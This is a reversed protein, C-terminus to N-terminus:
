KKSSFGLSWTSCGQVSPTVPTFRGAVCNCTAMPMGSGFMGSTRLNYPMSSLSVVVVKSKSSGLVLYRYQERRGTECADDRRRECLCTLLWTCLAPGDLLVDERRADRGLIRIFAELRRGPFDFPDGELRRRRDPAVERHSRITTHMLKRIRLEAM